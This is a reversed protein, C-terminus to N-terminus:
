VRMQSSGADRGRDAGHAIGVVVRQHLRHVPHELGFADAGNHEMGAGGPGEGIDLLGGGAPDVPEIVSAEVAGESHEGWYLEFCEVVLGEVLAQVWLTAAPFGPWNM